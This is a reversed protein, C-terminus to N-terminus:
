CTESAAEGLRRAVKTLLDRSHPGESRLRARRPRGEAALILELSLADGGLEARYPDGWEVLLAAGGSRAEALGLPDLDKPSALRYLDAHLVRPETDFEHVLSFTPSTVPDRQPIGLARLVGRVLFTKGAGLPGSLLVLSSPALAEALARGLRRTARRSPLEVELSTM